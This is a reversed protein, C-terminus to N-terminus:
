SLRVLKLPSPILRLLESVQTVIWIVMKTVDRFHDRLSLASLARDVAGHEGGLFLKSCVGLLSTGRRLDGRAVSM